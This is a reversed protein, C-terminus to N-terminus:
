ESGEMRATAAIAAVDSGADPESLAFAAIWDGRAVRPLYWQKLEETGHLSIPGSRLGPMAFPFDALASHRALTERILCLCRSELTARGGGFAGPVAYRL